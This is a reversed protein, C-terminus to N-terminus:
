RGRNVRRATNGSPRVAEELAQFSPHGRLHRLKPDTGFWFMWPDREEIAREFEPFAADLEGLAVHAMATFYSKMGEVSDRGRLKERIAVAEDRRGLSVLAFCLPYLVLGSDPQLQLAKQLAEVAELPRGAQELANGLQMYAQPFSSDFTVLEEVQRPAFGPAEM